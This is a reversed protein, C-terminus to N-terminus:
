LSLLARHPFNKSGESPDDHTTPRYLTHYSSGRDQQSTYHSRYSRLVTGAFSNEVRGSTEEAYESQRIYPLAASLLHYM